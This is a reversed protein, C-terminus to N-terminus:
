GAIRDRVDLRAADAAVRGAGLGLGDYANLPKAVTRPFMRTVAEDAVRSRAALVPLLREDRQLEETVSVTTEALREGIRQGYAVLFSHRFSKMRSQGRVDHQRGAVLMARNAQVLLSTTLLDVLRLDTETGVTLVCGLDKIWVIRCRNAQAVAQVLVVKAAVYPNDIWIRRVEATASRGDEHDSVAEGLSYRAMLAQAKASLAEAEEPYDTAEAKALLARVRALMKEDVASNVNSPQRNAGPPPLLGRIAPLGALLHLVRLVVAVVTKQDARRATVWRHMQPASDVPGVASSIDSLEARWRPHLTATAYQRSETVIAEDLYHVAAADARRRGIEHLDAPSWGHEWAARIAEHVALEAAIDFEREFGRCQTLLEAVAAAGPTGAASSLAFVLRTLIQARDPGDASQRHERQASARRRQKEKAARRERNRKGMGVTNRVPGVLM